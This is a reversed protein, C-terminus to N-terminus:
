IVKYTGVISFALDRPTASVATVEIGVLFWAGGTSGSLENNSSLTGENGNETSDVAISTAVNTYSGASLTKQKITLTASTGSRIDGCYRELVLKLGAPVYTLVPQINDSDGSAVKIENQILFIFEKL